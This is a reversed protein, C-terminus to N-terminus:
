KGAAKQVMQDIKVFVKRVKSYSVGLGHLIPNKNEPKHEEISTQKQVNEVVQEEMKKLSPAEIRKGHVVEYAMDPYNTIVADIGAEKIRYMSNKDNVTWVHLKIGKDQCQEIFQPYELNNFSPHLADVHYQEAYDAPQYIGNSYLFGVKAEPCLKKIRIVSYHNFSSYIIRDQMGMEEVLKLVQEEIGEYFNVGTKLEINIVMNTPKVFELVEKLTPITAQTYESHLKNFLLAKLEELTYNVVYGTGNSTRDITEDHIVVVQRDKTLQVDLEIGDAGMEHALAFAELTNEPAYGSAGRHAWVQMHAKKKIENLDICRDMGSGFRIFEIKRDKTNIIMTDWLEQLVTGQLRRYTTAGEPKKDAFYECKSCGISIIPFEREQYIYDAHTHGHVFAMIRKGHMRNWEELMSTLLEGNRIEKAWYDLRALPADHSFLIVQYEESLQELQSRVWEVEELPFGYRLDQVADFSHLFLMCLKHEAYDVRYWLSKDGQKIQQLYYEYQEEESLRDMNNRFYNTDHNGIAMYFPKKWSEIRKIVRQSYVKCIEKDLSGDTLDGLHIIGDTQINRNVEEITVATFEWNGNVVYHTDSLLTFVLSDKKRKKQVTRITREIEKQVDESELYECVKKDKDQKSNFQILGIGVENAEIEMGDKRTVQIRIYGEQKIVEDKQQWELRSSDREYTTWQQEEQYSYTYVYEMPIELSYFTYRYQYGQNMLRLVDGPYVHYFLLTSMNRVTSKTCKGTEIDLEWGIRLELEQEIM